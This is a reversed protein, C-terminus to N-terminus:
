FLGNEHGFMFLLACYRFKEVKARQLCENDCLDNVRSMLTAFYRDWRVWSPTPELLDFECLNLCLELSVRVGVHGVFSKIVYLVKKQKARRDIKFSFGEQQSEDILLVM